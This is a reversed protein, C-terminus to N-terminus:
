VKRKWPRYEAIGLLHREVAIAESRVLDRFSGDAGRDEIKRVWRELTEQRGKEALRCVGEEQHFWSDELQDRLLIEFILTDCIAPKFIEAIDLALSARAEQASHLFALSDDLHTKAIENRVLAYALGNFWSILCNVPNDPPRRRRKGFDLRPDIVPWADYYFARMQGEMGMLSEVSGAKELGAVIADIKDIIPALEANGRWLRYKLNALINAGAGSVFSRSMSLRLGPDSVHRAQLLRVKGSSSTGRPEFCGTVNGHWDLITVRVGSRGCLGLVATTLKAEGAVIVHRLGEIPIRRRTSSGTTVVLTADERLIKCDKTVFLTDMMFIWM